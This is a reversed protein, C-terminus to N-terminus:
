LAKQQTLAQIKFTKLVKMFYNLVASLPKKQDLLFMFGYLYNHVIYVRDGHLTQKKRM